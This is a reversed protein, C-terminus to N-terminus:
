RRRRPRINAPPQQELIEGTEPDRVLGKNPDLRDEEHGDSPGPDDRACLANLRGATMRCDGFRIRDTPELIAQRIARWDDGDRVFTGNITARDTVYLRGGSLPVVEAHCRSVSADELRIDCGQERGVVFTKFQLTESRKWRPGIVM